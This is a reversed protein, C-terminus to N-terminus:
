ETKGNAMNEEEKHYNLFDEFKQMAKEQNKNPKDSKPKYDLHLDFLHSIEKSARRYGQHIGQTYTKPQKYEFLQKRGVGQGGQSVNYMQFGKDALAKITAIEHEDLEEKPYEKYDLKWGYPNDEKWLGHKKLSLAIHDYEALHAGCRECLSIAQGCYARRIGTEDVRHFIYIGPRYPIGPCLKKIRDERSKKMAYIKKFNQQNFAM